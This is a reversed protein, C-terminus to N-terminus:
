LFASEDGQEGDAEKERERERERGRVDGRLSWGKGLGGQVDVSIPRKGRAGGVVLFRKNEPEPKPAKPNLNPNPNISTPQSTTTTPPPPQPPARRSPAPNNITTTTNTTITHRQDTTEHKTTTTTIDRGRGSGFDDGSPDHASNDNSSWRPAFIDSAYYKAASSQHPSPNVPRWHRQGDEDISEEIDDQGGADYLSESRIEEEEDEEKEDEADEYDSHNPTAYRQSSTMSISSRHRMHLFHSFASLRHRRPPSRHQRHPSSSPFLFSSRNPSHNAKEPHPPQHHHHHHHRSPTRPGRTDSTTSNISQNRSLRASKRSQKLLSLSSARSAPGASLFPNHRQRSSIRQKHFNQLTTERRLSSAPSPAVMRVTVGRENRGKLPVPSGLHLTNSTPTQPFARMIMSIESLKGDHRRSSSDTTADETTDYNRACANRWTTRVLGFEYPGGIGGFGAQSLRALLAMDSQARRHVAGRGTIDVGHGMGIDARGFGPLQQGSLLNASLVSMRLNNKGAKPYRCSPIVESVSSRTSTGSRRSRASCRRTQPRSLSYEEAQRNFAQVAPPEPRVANFNRGVYEQFMDATQSLNSEEGAMRSWRSRSGRKAPSSSWLDKIELKPPNSSDRKPVPVSPEVPEDDRITLWSAEQEMPRSIEEKELRPSEDFSKRRRKKKKYICIFVLVALAVVIPIVIAAPLWRRRRKSAVVSAPPSTESSRISSPSAEASTSTSSDDSERSDGGEKRGIAIQVIQSESQSELTATINVFVTKTQIDSPVRGYFTLNSADFKLWSASERLDVALVVEPSGLVTRDITYEFDSGPTANLTGLSGRFLNSSNDSIQVFLTTRAVDGYLNTVTVTLNRSTASPPPTGSIALTGKDLSMWEPIDAEVQRIDTPQVPRGDLVLATGLGSFNFPVEPTVNIIELTNQFSFLRSGVVIEFEAVAGSFGVVDSATLKIGFSQSLEIPSTLQPATGTLSLTSPDWTIWSPLPTNNACIAYYVTNENTNTFTSKSFSLSLPSSRAIMFTDPASFTGQAALQDSVPMGLGPGAEASIILTVEMATSGTEDSAILQFLVPGTAEAPPTGSLTRSAADLQLWPPSGSLAYDIRQASSTFTSEAFVFEFTKSVRAVPPVQANIPLGINPTATVANILAVLWLLLTMKM